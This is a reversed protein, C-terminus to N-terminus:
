PSIKNKNILIYFGAIIDALDYDKNLEQTPNNKIRQLLKIAKKLYLKRRQM